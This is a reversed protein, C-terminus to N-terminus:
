IVKSFSTETLGYGRRALIRAAGKCSELTTMRVENAGNERAWAEFASLLALGKGDEAWWFLEVAMRWSPACLAPAIVGGIMGAGSVFVGGPILNACVESMAQPDFPVPLGSAAHFAAGM